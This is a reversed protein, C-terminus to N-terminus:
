KRHYGCLFTESHLTWPFNGPNKTLFDELWSFHTNKECCFRILKAGITIVCFENLCNFAFLAAHEILKQVIQRGSVFNHIKLGTYLTYYFVHQISFFIPSSDGVHHEGDRKLASDQRAKGCEISVVSLVRENILLTLIIYRKRRKKKWNKLGRVIGPVNIPVHQVM